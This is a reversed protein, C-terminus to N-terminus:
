RVTLTGRMGPHISCYFGYSRGAELKEAGDVPEYQGAGIVPTSFLPVGEGNEEDAVVDHQQFDANIFTVAGGQHMVMTPTAYTTYTSGPGAIIPVGAPTERQTPPNALGDNV